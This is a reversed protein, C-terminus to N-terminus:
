LRERYYTRVAPVTLAVVAFLVVALGTEIPVSAWSLWRDSGAATTADFWSDCILLSGAVVSTLIVLQLRLVAIGNKPNLPPGHASGRPALPM